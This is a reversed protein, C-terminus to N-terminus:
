NTKGFVQRPIKCSTFGPHILIIQSMPLIPVGLSRTGNWARRHWCSRILHPKECPSTETSKFKQLLSRTFQQFNLM